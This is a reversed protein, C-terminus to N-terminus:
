ARRGRERAQREPPARPRVGPPKSRPRPQLSFTVLPALQRAVAPGIGRVRQLEDLSGYPGNSDRDAVIRAALAPGIRPLLEIRDATAVDLDVPGADRNIPAPPADALRVRGKSRRAGKTAVSEVRAIQRRLAAREAPTAAPPPRRAREVRVGVGLLLVAALFM